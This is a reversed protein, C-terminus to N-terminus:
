ASCGCRPAARRVDRWGGQFSASAEKLQRELITQLGRLIPQDAKYMARDIARREHAQADEGFERVVNAAFAGISVGRQDAACQVRKLFAYGLSAVAAHAVKEHSCTHVIEDLLVPAEKFKQLVPTRACECERADHEFGRDHLGIRLHAKSVYRTICRLCDVRYRGVIVGSIPM